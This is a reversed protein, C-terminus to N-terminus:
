RKLITTIRCCLELIDDRDRLKNGGKDYFKLSAATKLNKPIIRRAMDRESFKNADEGFLELDDNIEFLCKVAGTHDHGEYRLEGFEM